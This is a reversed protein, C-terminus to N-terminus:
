GFEVVPAAACRCRDAACEGECPHGEPPPSAYSFRKGDNRAAIGCTDPLAAVWDYDRIGLSIAKERKERAIEAFHARMAARYDAMEAAYQEPPKGRKLPKAPPRTM